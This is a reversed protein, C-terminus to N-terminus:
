TAVFGALNDLTQGWGQEMSPLAERFAASQAETADLPTSRVTLVTGGTIGAHRELTVLTALRAPWPGGFPSPVVKREADAFCLEFGLRHPADLETFHWLAWTEPLDPGRFGYFFTGGVRLDLHAEFITWVQPHFWRRLHAADTWAEWVLQQPAAIVRRIVLSEPAEAGQVADLHTALRALTQHGGQVAGIQEVAFRLAEVTPFRMSLTLRTRKPGLDQLTITTVHQPAGSAEDLYRLVLRQPAVVEDFLAYNAYPHGDPGHMTMRWVGGPRLDYTHTVSRFGTPGWWALLHAPDTLVKWVLDRPADLDRHLALDRADPLTETTM